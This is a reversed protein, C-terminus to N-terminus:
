ALVAIRLRQRLRQHVAVWLEIQFHRPALGSGAISDVHALVALRQVRGPHQLHDAIAIAQLDLAPGHLNNIGVQHGFM